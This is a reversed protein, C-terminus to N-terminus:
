NVSLKESSEADCGLVTGDYNDKCSNPETEVHLKSYSADNQCAGPRPVIADYHDGTKYLYLVTKDCHSNSRGMILKTDYAAAIKSVIVINIGLANAIVLPM